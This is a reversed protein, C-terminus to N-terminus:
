LSSANYKREKLLGSTWSDVEFKELTRFVKKNLELIKISISYNDVKIKQGNVVAGEAKISIEDDKAWSWKGHMETDGAVLLCTGDTLFQYKDSMRPFDDISEKTISWISSTLLDSRNSKNNQGCSLAVFLLTITLLQKM